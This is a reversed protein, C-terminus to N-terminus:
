KTQYAAMMRIYDVAIRLDEVAEKAACPAPREGRVAAIFNRAQNRMASLNPMSPQTLTPMGDGNDRFIGVRGSEQRALPAPLDIRVYGKEFCVMYSEHWDISTQYAAMELTVCVGSESEGALLVGSRDAFTLSYPEGLLFRLANVQHIYYNVFSDYSKGEEPSFYDPYPEFESQLYPENTRIPKDAGKVWNGPPMSVRVYKMRGCTGGTKWDDIVKKAYEMAPDSRKHYGVMHLVHHQEGIHALREGEEVTLCLPKETFLPIGARLIDPTIQYYRRYPQAAVIADLEGHEILATHDDYVNPIGYRAAVERALQPQPEALAVVECLDTLMTYNSLHAMQGM